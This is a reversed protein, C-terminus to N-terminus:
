NAAARTLAQTERGLLETAPIGPYIRTLKEIIRNREDQSKADRYHRRLLALKSKRIRRRRIEYNRSPASM